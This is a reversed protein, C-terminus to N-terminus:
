DPQVCGTEFLHDRTGTSATSTAYCEVNSHNDAKCELSVYSPYVGLRLLSVKPLGSEGCHGQQIAISDKCGQSRHCSVYICMLRKAQPRCM